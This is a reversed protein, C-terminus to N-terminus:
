IPVIKFGALGLVAVLGAGRQLQMQKAGPPLRDWSAQVELEDLKWEVCGEQWLRKTIVGIAELPVERSHTLRGLLTEERAKELMEDTVGTLNM